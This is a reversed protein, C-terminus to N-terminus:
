PFYFWWAYFAYFAYFAPIFFNREKRSPVGEQAKKRYNLVAAHLFKTEFNNM